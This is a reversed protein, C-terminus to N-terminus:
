HEALARKQQRRWAMSCLMPSQEPPTFPEPLAAACGLMLM